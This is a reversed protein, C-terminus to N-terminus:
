RGPRRSGSRNLRLGNGAAWLSISLSNVMVLPEAGRRVHVAIPIGGDMVEEIVPVPM